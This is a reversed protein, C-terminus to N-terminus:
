LLKIMQQNKEYTGIAYIQGHVAFVGFVLAFAIFHSFKTSTSKNM